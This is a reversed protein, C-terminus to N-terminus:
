DELTVAESTALDALSARRVGGSAIAYLTDGIFAPRQWELWWGFPDDQVTELEGVDSFGTALDVRYCVVGSWAQSFNRSMLTVPLALFRDGNREYLSFAKHSASVDSYSGSGGLALQEVAQPNAPDSVNFLSLQVGWSTAGWPSDQTSRGVGILHTDGVPHLYDSFGPIKLEGVVQPAAPDSLDLVFLPDVQLFTVLYGRDGLFRAAYITENPALKDVYGKIVLAEGSQELVYVGNYPPAANADRSLNTVAAAVPFDSVTADGLLPEIIIAADIHTAVRLRGNHEGLSFQNLLRGPVTGSATYRAAGDEAFALKHIQTFERSNGASFDYEADTLYVANPSVYITSCDAMVGVSTITQEIDAANLTLVSTMYYGGGDDVPHLWQEWTVADTAAGASSRVQPMVEDMSLAAVELAQKPLDPTITLVVILRDNLMRSSVLTGDFEVQKLLQPQAPDTVNIQYVVTRSDTYYPPWMMIEPGGPGYGGYETGLALITTGDLYLSDIRVNLDLRGVEELVQTPAARVVRLSSGRAIYFNVGDSKFVDAEDVGAEQLNTTSFTPASGAEGASADEMAGVATPAMLFGGFGNRSPSGNLRSNAQQKVYALMAAQSEFPILKAEGPSQPGAPQPCGGVAALLCVGLLVGVVPLVSKAMM